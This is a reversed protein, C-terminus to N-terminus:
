RAVRAARSRLPPRGDHLDGANVDIAVVERVDVPRVDHRTAALDDAEGAGDDTDRGVVPRLPEALRAREARGVQRRVAPARAGRQALQRRRQEADVRALERDHVVREVGRQEAVCVRLAGDVDGAPVQEPFRRALGDADQEATAALRRIREVDRNREPRGLLHGRVHARPALFANVM